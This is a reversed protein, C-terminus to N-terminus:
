PRVGQRESTHQGSLAVISILEGLTLKRHHPLIEDGESGDWKIRVLAPTPRVILGVLYDDGLWRMRAMYSDTRDRVTFSTVTRSLIDLVWLARGGYVFRSQYTPTEWSIRKGHPSFQLDHTDHQWSHTLQERRGSPIDYLWIGQDKLDGYEIAYLVQGADPSFLANLEIALPMPEQNVSAPMKDAIVVRRKMFPNEVILKGVRYTRQTLADNGAASDRPRNFLLIDGAQSVDVVASDSPVAYKAWDDRANRYLFVDRSATRWVWPAHIMEFLGEYGAPNARAPPKVETTSEKRTVDCKVLQLGRDAFWHWGCLENPKSWWATAPQSGAWWGGERFFRPTESVTGAGLKHPDPPRRYLFSMTDYRGMLDYMGREIQYRISQKMPFWSPPFGLLANPYVADNNASFYLYRGDPSWAPQRPIWSSSFRTFFHAEGTDADIIGAHGIDDSRSRNVGQEFAITKGDPSAAMLYMDSPDPALLVGRGVFWVGHLVVFAVALVILPKAMSWATAWISSTSPTKRRLVFFAAVLGCAAVIAYAAIQLILPQLRGNWFIDYYPRTMLRFPLLVSVAFLPLIAVLPGILFATLPHRVASSVFLTVCVLLLGPGITELMPKIDAFLSCRDLIARACAAVIILPICMAAVIIIKSLLIKRASIPKEILFVLNGARREGAIITAPFLILVFVCFVLAAYSVVDPQPKPQMLDHIRTLSLFVVGGIASAVFLPMMQRWEKWLLARLQRMM